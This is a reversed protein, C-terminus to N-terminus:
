WHIDNPDEDDNLDDESDSNAEVAEAEDWGEQHKLYLDGVKGFATELQDSPIPLGEEETEPPYWFNSHWARKSTSRVFLGLKLNLFNFIRDSDEATGKVHKEKRSESSIQLDKISQQIVLCHNLALTTWSIRSLTPSSGNM